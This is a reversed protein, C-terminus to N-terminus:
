KAAMQLHAAQLHAALYCIRLITLGMQLHALDASHNWCKYSGRKDSIASFTTHKRNYTIKQHSLTYLDYMCVYM